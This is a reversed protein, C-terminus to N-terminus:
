AAVRQMSAQPSLFLKMILLCLPSMTIMCTVQSDQINRRELYAVQRCARHIHSRFHDRRSLHDHVAFFFFSCVFQSVSLRFCRGSDGVTSAQVHWLWLFESIQQTAPLCLCFCHASLDCFLFFSRHSLLFSSTIVGDDPTYITTMTDADTTLINM